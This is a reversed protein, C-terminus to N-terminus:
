FPTGCPGLNGRARPAECDDNAHAECHPATTCEVKQRDNKKKKKKRDTNKDGNKLVIPHEPGTRGARFWPQHKLYRSTGEFMPLLLFFIAVSVITGRAPPASFPANFM